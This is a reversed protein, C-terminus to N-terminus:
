QKQPTLVRASEIIPADTDGPAGRALFRVGAVRPRTADLENKGLWVRKGDVEVMGQTRNVSIKVDIPAGTRVKGSSTAVSGDPLVVSGDGGRLSFVLEHPSTASEEGFNRDDAIFVQVVLDDSTKPLKVSAEIAFPQDPSFTREYIVGGGRFVTKDLSKLIPKLGDDASIALSGFASWEMGLEGDFKTVSRTNVFYTQSLDEAVVKEGRPVVMWGVALVIGLIVIASIAAILNASPLAAPSASEEREIADFVQRTFGPGARVERYERGSALRERAAYLLKYEDAGPAHEFAALAERWQPSGPGARLADTVLQLQSSEFDLEAMNSSM